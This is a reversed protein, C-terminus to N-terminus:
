QGDRRQLLGGRDPAGQIGAGAGEGALRCRGSSLPALAGHEVVRDAVRDLQPQQVGVRDVPDPPLGRGDGLGDVAAHDGARGLDGPQEGGDAAVAVPALM